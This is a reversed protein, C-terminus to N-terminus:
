SRKAELRESLLRSTYRRPQPFPLTRRRWRAALTRYPVRAMLARDIEERSPHTCVRCRNSM